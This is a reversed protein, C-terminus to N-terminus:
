LDVIFLATQEGASRSFVARLEFAASALDLPLSLSQDVSDGLACSCVGENWPQIGQLGFAHRHFLLEGCRVILAFRDRDM